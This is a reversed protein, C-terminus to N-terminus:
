ESEGASGGDPSLTLVPVPASRVVQETVSGELYRSVGSRGHTGMVAIDAEVDRVYQKITEDPVGREVATTPDLGAERVIGATEAVIDHGDEVAHQIPDSGVAETGFGSFSTVDVVYLVHVHADHCAALAAGHEAARRAATTGDTPIVVTDYM